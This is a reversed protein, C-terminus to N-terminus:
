QKYKVLVFIRNKESFTYNYTPKYAHLVYSRMYQFTYSVSFM